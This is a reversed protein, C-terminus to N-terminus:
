VAKCHSVAVHAAAKLLIAVMCLRVDKHLCKFYKKFRKCVNAIVAYRRM